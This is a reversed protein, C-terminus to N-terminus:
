HILMNWFVLCFSYSLNPHHVQLWKGKRNAENYDNFLKTVLYYTQKLIFVKIFSPNWATYYQSNFFLSNQSLTFRFVM